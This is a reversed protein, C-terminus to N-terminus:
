LKLLINLNMQFIKNANKLFHYPQYAKSNGNTMYQPFFKHLCFIGLDQIKLTQYRALPVYSLVGYDVTNESHGLLASESDSTSLYTAWVTGYRKSELASFVLFHATKSMTVRTVPFLCYWYVFSGNKEDVRQTKDTIINWKQM